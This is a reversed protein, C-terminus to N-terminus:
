FDKLLVIIKKIHLDKLQKIYDLKFPIKLLTYDNINKKLHRNIRIKKNKRLHTKKLKKFCLENYNNLEYNKCLDRFKKRENIMEEDQLDEIYDPYIFNKKNDLKSFLLWYCDIFIMNDHIVM